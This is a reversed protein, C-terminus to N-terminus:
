DPFIPERKLPLWDLMDETAADWFDFNHKGHSTRAELPIGNEECFSIMHTHCSYTLPDEMGCATYLLPISNGARKMNLLMTFLDSVNPDIRQPDGWIAKRAKDPVSSLGNASLRELDFAGSLAAAAAFREPHLLASKFAGYGGMSYGAAFRDERRESLPFMADMMAPLEESIYTWYDRGFACDTYYSHGGADPFVLAVNRERAYREVSTERLWTTSDAAGGHLMYVVQYKPKRSWGTFGKTDIPLVVQVETRMGLVDSRLRVQILAM